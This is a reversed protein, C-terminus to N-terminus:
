RRGFHDFFHRRLFRLVRNHLNEPQRQMANIVVRPAAGFLGRHRIIGAVLPNWAILAQEAADAMFGSVVEPPPAFVEPMHTSLGTDGLVNWKSLGGMIPSSLGFVVRRIRSERIAYSCFVCPETNTYIECNDLSVSGLAHQAQSIAVVEAHRTVDVDRAVRNMAETVIANDRCIVAAYPYEGVKGSGMTLRICHAMMLRDTNESTM